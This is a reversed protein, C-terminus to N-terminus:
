PECALMQVWESKLVHAHENEIPLIHQKGMKLTRVYHPAGSLPEVTIVHFM